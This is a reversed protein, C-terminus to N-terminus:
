ALSVVTGFVSGLMMTDAIVDYYIDVGLVADVEKTRAGNELERMTRGEKTITATIIM